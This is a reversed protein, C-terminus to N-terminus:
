AHALFRDESKQIVIPRSHSGLNRFSGFLSQSLFKFDV